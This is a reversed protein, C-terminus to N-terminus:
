RERQSERRDSECVRVFVCVSERMSYTIFSLPADAGRSFVRPSGDLLAV